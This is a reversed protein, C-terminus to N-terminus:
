QLLAHVYTKFGRMDDPLEGPGIILPGDDADPHLGHSGRVL